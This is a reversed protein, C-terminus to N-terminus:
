RHLARPAELNSASPKSSSESCQPRPLPLHSLADANSNEQTPRFEIEYQYSALIIAWHQLRAAALSPIGKKAKLPKHDTVLIFKRGYLYQHFKKVGFILALAEKEIQAYNCESPSLTRSAFAIPHESGNPLVHSIVAGVGCTSADAAMKIPLDPNYHALVQSSILIEKAKQFAEACETTCNWTADKRLLNNLPHLLTALNPM